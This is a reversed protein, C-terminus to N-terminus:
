FIFIEQFLFQTYAQNRVVRQQRQKQRQQPEQEKAKGENEKIRM